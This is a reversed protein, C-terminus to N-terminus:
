ETTIMPDRTHATTIYAVPIDVTSACMVRWAFMLVWKSDIAHSMFPMHVVHARHTTTGRINTGILIQM